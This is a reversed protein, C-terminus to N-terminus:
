GYKLEKDTLKTLPTRLKDYDLDGVMKAVGLQEGWTALSLRTLM